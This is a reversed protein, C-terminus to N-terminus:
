KGNGSVDLNVVRVPRMYCLAACMTALGRDGLYNGAINLTHLSPSTKFLTSLQHGAADNIRLLVLVCLFTVLPM